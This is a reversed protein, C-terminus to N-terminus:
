IVKIKAMLDEKFARGIPITVQNIHIENNKIKDIKKLNVAHSKHVRVIQPSQIQDLIEKLTMKALIKGELTFINAYYDYADIYLIEEPIIKMMGNSSNIFCATTEEKSNADTQNEIRSFALEIAVKISTSTYPKVVYGYPAINKVRELTAQDSFATTFIVPLRFETKLIGALHIGDISDNLQIDMLVLDPKQKKFAELADTATHSIAMVEYNMELLMEKLDHAIFVDDEVIYIKRIM